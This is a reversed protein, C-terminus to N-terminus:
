ESVTNTSSASDPAIQIKVGAASSANAPWGVTPVPQSSRPMPRPPDSNRTGAPSTGVQCSPSSDHIRARGAQIWGIM